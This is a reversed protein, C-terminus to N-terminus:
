GIRPSAGWNGALTSRVVDRIVEHHLERLPKLAEREVIPRLTELSTRVGLKEAFMRALRVHQAGPTESQHSVYAIECAYREPDAVPGPHFKTEDAALPLSVARERPYGHAAFLEEFAYGAV